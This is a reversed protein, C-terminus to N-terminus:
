PAPQPGFHQESPTPGGYDKSISQEKSCGEGKNPLTYTPVDQSVKPRAESIAAFIARSLAAEAATWDAPKNMQDNNSLPQAPLKASMKVKDEYHDVACSMTM